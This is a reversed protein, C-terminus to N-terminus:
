GIIKIICAGKSNEIYNFEINNFENKWMEFIKREYKRNADDIIIISGKHLKEFLLPLAPYRANNSSNVPPGDITLLDITDIKDLGIIDYWQFKNKPYSILPAHLVQAYDNLSHKDIESTIISSFHKDHDLSIIQGQSIKKLSYASILTSIGSGAEVIVNPKYKKITDYILFLLDPNAAFGDLSNSGPLPKEINLANVLTTYIELQRYSEKIKQKPYLKIYLFGMLLLLIIFEIYVKNDLQISIIIYLLSILIAYFATRGITKNNM